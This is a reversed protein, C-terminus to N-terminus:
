LGQSYQNIGKSRMKEPCRCTGPLKEMDSFYFAHRPSLRQEQVFRMERSNAGMPQLITEEQKEAFIGLRRVADPHRGNAQGTTHAEGGCLSILIELTM